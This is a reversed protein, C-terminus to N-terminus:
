KTAEVFLSHNPRNDFESGNLEEVNSRRYSSLRIQDIDFGAELLFKTIKDFTFGNIHAKYKATNPIQTVCWKIFDEKSLTEYHKKIVDCKVKHKGKTIPGPADGYSAFFDILQNGITDGFTLIDKNNFFDKDNSEYAKFAKDANPCSLRITGGDKLVRYSEKLIFAVSADDMHEITHSSFVIEVEGDKVPLKKKLRLDMRIDCKHYFDVNTWGNKKFNPGAGINIKM